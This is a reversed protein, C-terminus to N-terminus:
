ILFVNASDKHEYQKSVLVCLPLGIFVVNILEIVQSMEEKEADIRVIQSRREAVMTQIKTGPRTAILWIGASGQGEDWTLAFITKYSFGSTNHVAAALEHPEVKFIFVANTEINQRLNLQQTKYLSCKTVFVNFRLSTNLKLQVSNDLSIRRKRKRKDVISEIRVVEYHPQPAFEIPKDTESRELYHIIPDSRPVRAAGKTAVVLIEANAATYSGRAFVPTGARANRKIWVAHVNQFEFGWQTIENLQHIIGPFTCWIFLVSNPSVTKDLRTSGRPPWHSTCYFVSAM